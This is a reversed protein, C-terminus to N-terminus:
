EKSGLSKYLAILQFDYGNKKITTDHLAIVNNVLEKIIAECETPPSQSFWLSQDIQRLTRIKTAIVIGLRQEDKECQEIGNRLWPLSGEESKIM